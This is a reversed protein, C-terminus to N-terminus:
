ALAYSTRLKIQLHFSRFRTFATEDVISPDPHLAMKTSALDSESFDVYVTQMFRPLQYPRLEPLKGQPGRAKGGDPGCIQRRLMGEIERGISQGSGGVGVYIFRQGFSM